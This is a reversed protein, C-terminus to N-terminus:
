SQHLQTLMRVTGRMRKLSREKGLLELYHFLSPGQTRGSTSVRIPHFVAGPKM